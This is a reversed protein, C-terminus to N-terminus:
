NQISERHFSINTEQNPVLELSFGLSMCILAFANGFCYTCHCLYCITQGFLISIAYKCYNSLVRNWGLSFSFHKSHLPAKNMCIHLIFTLLVWLCIKKNDNQHLLNVQFIHLGFFYKHGIVTVIIWCIKFIELRM